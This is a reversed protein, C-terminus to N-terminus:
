NTTERAWMKLCLVWHNHQLFCVLLFLFINPPFLRSMAMVMVVPDPRSAYCLWRLLGASASDADSCVHSTPRSPCHTEARLASFWNLCVAAGVGLTLTLIRVSKPQLTELHWFLSELGLGTKLITAGGLGGCQPHSCRKRQRGDLEHGERVEYATWM